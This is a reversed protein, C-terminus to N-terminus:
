GGIGTLIADFLGPVARLTPIMARRLPSRALMLLGRTSWRYQRTLQRWEREYAANDGLTSVAARASELGLRIGEGTIADVYGAADGILRARGATRAGVHYDFPGAGRLHSRYRPPLRKQLRPFRALLREFPNGGPGLAEQTTLFAVGIQDKAVPTVYAEAGPAWYVEVMDTWPACDVHRRFGIRRIGVKSSIALANRTPSRLGDAIIAHTASGVDFHVQEDQTQFTAKTPIRTVGLETARAWLANSLALRRVGLGPGTKFRGSVQTREDLYRVGEFPHSEFGTVGLDNLERVAAPMLGEGCAKDIPSGKPEAIAVALGNKAARIAAALGSPGGGVVLLDWSV